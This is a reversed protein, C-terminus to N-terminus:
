CHGDDLAAHHVDTGRVECRGDGVCAAQAYDGGEDEGRGSSEAVLDASAASEGFVGKADVDREEGGHHRRVVAGIRLGDDVLADVNDLRRTVRGAGDDLLELLRADGNEVLASSDAVGLTGNLEADVKEADVTEFACAVDALAVDCVENKEAFSALREVHWEDRAAAEGVAVTECGRQAQSRATHIHARAEHASDLRGDM